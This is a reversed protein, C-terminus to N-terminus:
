KDDKEGETKCPTEVMEGVEMAGGIFWGSKMTSNHKRVYYLQNSTDYSLADSYMQTYAERARPYSPHSISIGQLSMGCVNKCSELGLYRSFVHRRSRLLVVVAVRPTFTVVNVPRVNISSSRLSSSGDEVFFMNGQWPNVLRAQSHTCTRVYLNLSQLGQCQIQRQYLWLPM